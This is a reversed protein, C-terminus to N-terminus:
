SLYLCFYIKLSIARYLQTSYVFYHLEERSVKRNNHHEYWWNLKSSHSLATLWQSSEAHWCQLIFIFHIIIIFKLIYKYLHCLEKVWIKVAKNNINKRESLRKNLESDKIIFSTKLSQSTIKQLLCQWFSRICEANITIYNIHKIKM